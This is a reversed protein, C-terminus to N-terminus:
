PLFSKFSDLSKDIVVGLNQADAYRIQEISELLSQIQEHSHINLFDSLASFHVRLGPISLVPSHIGTRLGRCSITM